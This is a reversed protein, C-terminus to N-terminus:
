ALMVNITPILISKVQYVLGFLKSERRFKFQCPLQSRFNWKNLRGAFESLSCRALLYSSQHNEGGHLLVRREITSWLLFIACIIMWMIVNWWRSWFFHFNVSVTDLQRIPVTRCVQFKSQDTQIQKRFFTEEERFDPQKPKEWCFGAPIKQFCDWGKPALLYM